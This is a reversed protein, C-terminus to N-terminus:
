PLDLMSQQQYAGFEGRIFGPDIKLIKLWLAARKRNVRHQDTRLLAQKYIESRLIENFDKSCLLLARLTLDSDIYKISCGVILTLDSYGLKCLRNSRKQLSMVLTEHETFMKSPNKQNSKLETLLIHTKSKEVHFTDTAWILVEHAQEYPLALNIFHNVFHSLENFILNANQKFETQQKEEKTQMLGKLSKFGKKFINGDGSSKIGIGFHNRDQGNGAELQERRKKRRHADEIKLRLMYEICERWNASDSWIGHDAILSSLYVKRKKAAMYYVQQCVELIMYLLKYDTLQEHVFLTMVFRIVDALLKISEYNALELPQNIEILIDTLSDRM